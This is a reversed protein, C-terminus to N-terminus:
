TFVYDALYEVWRASISSAAKFSSECLMNRDVYPKCARHHFYSSISPSPSPYELPEGIFIGGQGVVSAGSAGPRLELM